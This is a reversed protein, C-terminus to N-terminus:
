KKKKPRTFKLGSIQRFEALTIDSVSRVYKKVEQAVDVLSTKETYLLKNRAIIAQLYPTTASIANDNAAKLSDKFASLQANQLETENPAYTPEQAVLAILKAFHEVQQTFSRQSVSIRRTEADTGPARDEASESTESPAATATTNDKRTGRIRRIITKADDVMRDTVAETSDYANLIRTALKGMAQFVEQRQNVADTYAPRAATVAALAATADTHLTQLASIRILSNTPNYRTGFGELRSTMVKLNAVNIAHGTESTSAM